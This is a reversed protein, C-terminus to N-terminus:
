TYCPPGSRERYRHNSRMKNEHENIARLFSMSRLLRILIPDRIALDYIEIRYISVSSYADTNIVVWKVTIYVMLHFLMRLPM